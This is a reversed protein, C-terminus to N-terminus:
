DNEYDNVFGKLTEIAKHTKEEQYAIIADLVSEKDHIEAKEVWKEFDKLGEMSLRLSHYNANEMLFRRVELLTHQTKVHRHFGDIDVELGEKAFDNVAIASSLFTDDLLSLADETTQPKGRKGSFGKRKGINSITQQSVGTFAEIQEQTMGKFVFLFEIFEEILDDTKVM